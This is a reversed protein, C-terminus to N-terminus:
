RAIDTQHRRARILERRRHRNRLRLMGAVLHSGLDVLRDLAQLHLKATSRRPSAFWDTGLCVDAKTQAEIHVCLHKM